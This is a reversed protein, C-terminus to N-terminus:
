IQPPSREQLLWLGNLEESDPDPQVALFHVGRVGEKCDEWGKAEDISDPSPRWGGYRWRQNVGTELILCSREVDAKVTAIDLGNTWAALPLSRRSFVAVGPILMNHPLDAVGASDLSFTAGFMDGMEVAKLMDLVSGLPLQVFAWKEGRLADPLPEPAGMDLNFLSLSKDNFRPDQRYVGDLRQELWTMITFCRRSPVPKINLENLAKSIITQMQGRFFRAKEPRVAGPQSLVKEISRKLEASNIKSNPFYESYEFTREPDCILLEWVKKNREDLLPRSCFDLEWTPSTPVSKYNSPKAQVQVTSAESSLARVRRGSIVNISDISPTHFSCIHTVAFSNSGNHFPRATLLRYNQYRPCSHASQCSKSKLHGAM